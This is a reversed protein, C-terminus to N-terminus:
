VVIVNTLRSNASNEGVSTTKVAAVGNISLKKKFRFLSMSKQRISTNFIFAITPHTMNQVIFLAPAILTVFQSGDIYPLWLYTSFAALFVISMLFVQLSLRWERTKSSARLKAYKESTRMMYFMVSYCIIIIFASLSNTVLDLYRYRYTL